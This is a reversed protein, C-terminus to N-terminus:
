RAGRRDFARVALIGGGAGLVIISASVLGYHEEWWNGLTGCDSRDCELISGGSLLIVIVWVVELVIVGGLWALLFVVARAVWRWM